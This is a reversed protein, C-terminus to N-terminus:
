SGHKAENVDFEEFHKVHLGMGPVSVLRCDVHPLILYFSEYALYSAYKVRVLVCDVHPLGAAAPFTRQFEPDDLDVQSTNTTMGEPYPYLSDSLSPPYLRCAIMHLPVILEGVEESRCPYEVKRLDSMEAPM